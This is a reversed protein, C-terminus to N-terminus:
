TVTAHPCGQRLGGGPQGTRWGLAAKAPPRFSWSTAQSQCQTVKSSDGCRESSAGPVGKGSVVPPPESGSSRITCM